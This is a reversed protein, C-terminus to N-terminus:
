RSKSSKIYYKLSLNIGNLNFRPLDEEFSIDGQFSVFNFAYHYTGEIALNDTIYIRPGAHIGAIFGSHNVDSDQLLYYGGYPLIPFQVRNAKNLIYGVSLRGDYYTSGTIAYRGELGISLPEDESNVWDYGLYLAEFSNDTLSLRDDNSSYNMREVGFGLINKSQGFGSISLSFLILILLNKM